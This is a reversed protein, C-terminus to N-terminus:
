HFDNSAASFSQCSKKGAKNIKKGADVETMVGREQAGGTIFACNVDKCQFVGFQVAARRLFSWWLIM